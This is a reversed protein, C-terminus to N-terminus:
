KEIIRNCEVLDGEQGIDSDTGRSQRHIIEKSTCKLWAMRPGNLGETGHLAEAVVILM